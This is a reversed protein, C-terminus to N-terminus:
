PGLKAVRTRIERMLNPPVGGIVDVIEDAYVTDLWTIVAASRRALGTSVRRPDSNWPLPICDRPPPEPYTTTVAMLVLPQDLSIENDPTLIIAPRLKRYGNRDRVTAWVIRGARLKNAV